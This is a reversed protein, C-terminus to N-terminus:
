SIGFHSSTIFQQSNSPCKRFFEGQADNPYSNAVDTYHIRKRTGRIVNAANQAADVADRYSEFTLLVQNTSVTWVGGHKQVSYIM